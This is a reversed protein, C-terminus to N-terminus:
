VLLSCSKLETVGCLFTLWFPLHRPAYIVGGLGIAALWGSGSCGIHLKQTSLLALGGGLGCAVPVPLNIPPCRLWPYVLPSLFQLASSLAYLCPLWRMSSISLDDCALTEQAFINLDLAREMTLSKPHEESPQEKPQGIDADECQSELNTDSVIPDSKGFDNHKGVKATTSRDEAHLDHISRDTPSDDGQSDGTRDGM